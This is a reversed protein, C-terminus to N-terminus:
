RTGLFELLAAKLAVKNVKDTSNLPWQEYGLKELLVVGGLAYDKGMLEVVRAKVEDESKGNMQMLIAYPVAGYTEDDVGVVVVQAGTYAALCGEIVLPTIPVGARKIIDKSRGIIFTYGDKDIITTDGTKFWQRDGDKYFTQPSVNDLYHPITGPSDIHLEGPTGRPVINGLHDAHLM